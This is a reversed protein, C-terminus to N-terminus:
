QKAPRQVPLASPREVQRSRVPTERREIRQPQQPPQAMIRESQQHVPQKRANDNNQIVPQTRAPPPTNVAPKRNIQRDIVNPQNSQQNTQPLRRVPAETIVPRDASPLRKVKNNEIQQQQLRRNTQDINEQTIKERDTSENRIITRKNEVVEPVNNTKEGTNSSNPRSINEAPQLGERVTGNYPRVETLNKVQRPASKNNAANASMSPRYVEFEKNVIRSSGPKNTSAIGVERIPKRTYREVERYDPGRDFYNSKNYTNYNNIITINNVNYNNRV